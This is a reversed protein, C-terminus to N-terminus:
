TSAEAHPTHPCALRRRLTSRAVGLARAVASLRAGGDLLARARAVDVPVPLRGWTGMPLRGLLDSLRHRPVGLERAIESLYKGADLRRQVGELDVVSAPTRAGKARAAHIGAKVRAAIMEREVEALMAFAYLIMRGQMTSLDIAQKVCAFEIGLTALDYVHNVLARLGRGLRDLSWVM